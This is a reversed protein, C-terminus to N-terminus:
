LSLILIEFNVIFLAVFRTCVAYQVVRDIRKIDTSNNKKYVVNYSYKCNYAIIELYIVFISYYLSHYNNFLYM